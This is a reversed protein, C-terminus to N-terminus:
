QPAGLVEHADLLEILKDELELRNQLAGGM